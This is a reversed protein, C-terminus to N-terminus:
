EYNVVMPLKAFIQNKYRFILSYRMGSSEDLPNKPIELMRFEVNDLDEVNTVVKEVKFDDSGKLVIAKGERMQYLKKNIRVELHSLKPEIRKLYIVGNVVKRTSVVVPFVKAGKKVSWQAGKLLEATDIPCSRDDLGKPGKFGYVNVAGIKSRDKTMASEIVLIDGGVFSLTENTRVLREAGNVRVIVYDLGRNHEAERFDRYYAPLDPGASKALATANGIGLGLIVLAAASKM